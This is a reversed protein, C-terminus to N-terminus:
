AIAIEYEDDSKAAAGTCKFTVDISAIGENDGLTVGTVQALDAFVYVIKGDSTGLQFEIPVKNGSALLGFIDLTASPILEFSITMSPARKSIYSAIIGTTAVNMDKRPTVTAGEDFTISRAVVAVSNISLGAGQLIAPQETEYSLGSTMAKDASANKPGVMTFEFYGPKSAEFTGILNGMCGAASWAFGDEQLEISATEQNDSIPKILWGANAPSSSTSATAGSASGTLVEGSVLAGSISDHLLRTTGDACQVVVRATNASEDTVTEGRTFPGGAVAGITIQKLDQVTHGCARILDECEMDDTITDSPNIEMKISFGILKEGPLDGLETLSSRAIDRPETPSQFDASSDASIRGQNDAAVLTEMTGATTEIEALLQKQRTLLPTPM